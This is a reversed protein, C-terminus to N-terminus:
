WAPWCSVRLGLAQEITRELLVLTLHAGQHQEGGIVEQVAAVGPGDGEPLLQQVLFAGADVPGRQDLGNLGRPHHPASDAGVAAFVAGGKGQASATEGTMLTM